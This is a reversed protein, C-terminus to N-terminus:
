PNSSFVKINGDAGSTVLIPHIPHAVIKTVSEGFMSQHFSFPNSEGVIRVFGKDGMRLDYINVKGRNTGAAILRDFQLYTSSTFFCESALQLRLDERWMELPSIQQQQKKQQRQSYQNWNYEGKEIDYRVLDGSVYGVILNAVNMPDFIVSSPIDFDEWKDEIQEIQKF